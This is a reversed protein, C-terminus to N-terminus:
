LHKIPIQCQELVKDVFHDREKREPLQHSSDDLEIALVPTFYVPDFLVYDLTKKDIKSRYAKQQKEYKNVSVISALPVQPAIHYQDGYEEKLKLYLERERNTMLYPKKVYPYREKDVPTTIPLHDGFYKKFLYFGVGLILVFFILKSM